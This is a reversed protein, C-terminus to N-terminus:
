GVLFWRVWSILNQISWMSQEVISVFVNVPPIGTGFPRPPHSINLFPGLKEWGEGATLDIELLRERGGAERAFFSRVQEEHTFYVKEWASEDYSLYNPGYMDSFIQHVPLPFLGQAYLWDATLWLFKRPTFFQKAGKAFKQPDRKTLIFKAKPYNVALERFKLSPMIDGIFDYGEVCNWIIEAKGSTYNFFDLPAHIAM